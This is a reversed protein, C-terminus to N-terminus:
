NSVSAFRGDSPTQIMNKWPSLASGNDWFCLHIKIFWHAFTLRFSAHIRISVSPTFQLFLPYLDPPWTGTLRIFPEFILSVV